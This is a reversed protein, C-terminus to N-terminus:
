PRLIRPPSATLDIITSPKSKPLKKTDIILDPKYKEKQFEKIIEKANQLPEKGSINTSTQSLPTDINKLLLNLPGYNPIRLAITKPATGHIKTKKRQKKELIVTIKGPWVKKLFKEQKKNIKAFNKAMEINKVFVPLHKQLQRKKIKFIKAVAKKNTADCIIGYVTDTPFVVIKGNKIYDKSIKLVEKKNKLNLKITIM